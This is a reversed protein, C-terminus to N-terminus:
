WQANLLMFTWSMGTAAYRLAETWFIFRRGCAGEHLGPLSTVHGCCATPCRVPRNKAGRYQISEHQAYRQAKAFLLQLFAGVPEAMDAQGDTQLLELIASRIKAPNPIPSTYYCWRSTYLQTVSMYLHIKNVTVVHIYNRPVNPIQVMFHPKENFHSYEVGWHAVNKWM